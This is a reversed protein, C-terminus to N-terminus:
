EVRQWEGDLADSADGRGAVAARVQESASLRRPTDHRSGTQSRSDTPRPGAAHRNRATTIAWAFAGQASVDPRDVAETVCAALAEPTVGEALAAVLNPHHPNTSLCGARRMQLCAEGAESPARADSEGPLKQTARPNPAVAAGRLQAPQVGLNRLNCGVVEQPADAAGWSMDIDYVVPRRRPDRIKAAVIAQDGRTIVGEAELADLKYRVTRESLGTAKVIREVSPFADRGYKDAENALMLLVFRASPDTVRQQEMAWAM